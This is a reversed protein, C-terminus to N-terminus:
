HTLDCCHRACVREYWRHIAEASEMNEFRKQEKKIGDWYEVSEMPPCETVSDPTPEVLPVEAYNATTQTDLVNGRSDLPHSGLSVLTEPM